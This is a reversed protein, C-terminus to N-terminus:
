DFWSGIWGGVVGGVMSGVAAGVIGGGAVAGIVGGVVAGVGAGAVAGSNDSVLKQLEAGPTILDDIYEQKMYDDTGMLGDEHGNMGISYEDGAKLRKLMSESLDENDRIEELRYLKSQDKCRWSKCQYHTGSYYVDRYYDPLYMLHGVEHAITHKDIGSEWKGTKNDTVYSRLSPDNAIEICNMMGLDCTDAGSKVEADIKIPTGKYNQGGWVDEIAKEIEQAEADSAGDGYIEITIRIHYEQDPTSYAVEYDYGLLDILTVPSNSVYVYRNQKAPVRLTGRYV